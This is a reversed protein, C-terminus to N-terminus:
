AHPPMLHGLGHASAKRLVPRNQGDLNFLAYRKSSVAHCFLPEISEGDTLSYNCDEIKLLTDPAGYPNLPVFWRRIEEVRKLFEGEKMREPKGIAMSDTDCFAWDLGAEVILRETIALMLRAAGTTVAGVLPHFYPGPRECRASLIRHPRERPGFVSISERKDFEIPDLQVSIGYATSNALIKLFEQEADHTQRITGQEDKMRAKTEVRLQIVRKFFDEMAPDIRYELNGAITVPRMGQQPAKPAFRIAELVEPTKGTLLKSAICDALTFWLPQESTLYNLGITYHADDVGYKARAPFIDASPRVRVIATLGRWIDQNQLDALSVDRLFASVDKTANRCTMGSATLFRWLGMLTCVTPYMSLFDCYIVRSIMRRLHVESRGGFYASMIKGLLQPPIEPQVTRWPKIGMHRLYAKGMSAVSHINQIETGTLGHKLFQDRLKEYCEWTVQTDRLAYEITRDSLPGSLVKIDLKRHKTQLFAALSKLSFSRNTLAGALARIDVFHGQSAPVEQERRRVPRHEPSAFRILPARGTLLKVQVRGRRPDKSLAFSFGGRMSRTKATSHAHAIRSIDFPLNFGVIMAGLDYAIGYFVLEIFDELTRLKLIHARAYRELMRSDRKSLTGPDYFLGEEDLKTGDRVQYTAFRLHQAADLNTETDFILTLPSAPLRETPKRRNRIKAAPKRVQEVYARVAITSPDGETELTM